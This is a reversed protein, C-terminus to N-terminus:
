DATYPKYVQKGSVGQRLWETANWGGDVGLGAPVVGAVQSPLTAFSPSRDRISVIGSEGNILRKWTPRVGLPKQKNPHTHQTYLTFYHLNNNCMGVALPTVAGLGTIVVRRMAHQMQHLTLTDAFYPAYTHLIVNLILLM